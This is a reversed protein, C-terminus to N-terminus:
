LTSSYKTACLKTWVIRWILYLFTAGTILIVFILYKKYWPRVNQPPLVTIRENNARDIVRVYIYSALKQDKLLYPSEATQWPLESYNQKLSGSKEAIEYHGVGSEKDETMFVLFWEGNFVNSDRAIIPTFLEPPRTDKVSATPFEFIPIQNSILFQFNSIQLEAETGKGDNLLVKADKIAIIGSGENKSQFILSLIKGPKGGKYYPSLVGQFGGPIVGSFVVDSNKSYVPNKAWFNIISNGDNVNEIATLNNPFTIRGEVANIDQGQADLMLDVQFQQGIGIESVSSVLSLSAANANLCFVFFLFSFVIAFFYFNIKFKLNNNKM